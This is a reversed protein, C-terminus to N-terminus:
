VNEKILIGSDVCFKYPDKIFKNLTSKNSYFIGKCVFQYPNDEEAKLIQLNYKANGCEFGIPILKFIYHQHIGNECKHHESELERIFKMEM